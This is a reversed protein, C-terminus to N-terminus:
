FGHTKGVNMNKTGHMWGILSLQWQNPTYESDQFIIGWVRLIIMQLCNAAGEFDM